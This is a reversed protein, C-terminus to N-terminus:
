WRRADARLRLAVFPLGLSAGFYIRAAFYTGAGELEKGRKAAHRDSCWCANAHVAIQGAWSEKKRIGGLFWTPKGSEAAGYKEYNGQVWFRVRKGKIFRAKSEIRLWDM